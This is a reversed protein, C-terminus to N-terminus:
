KKEIEDNQMLNNARSSQWKKAERETKNNRSGTPWALRPWSTNEKM